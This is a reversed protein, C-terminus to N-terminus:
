PEVLERTLAASLADGLERHYPDGRGRTAPLFTKRCAGCELTPGNVLVTMGPSRSAPLPGFRFDARAGTSLPGGCGRCAQKQWFLFGTLRAYHAEPEFLLDFADVGLDPHSWLLGPCAKPCRLVPANEVTVRFRATEGVRTQPEGAVLATKCKPCDM